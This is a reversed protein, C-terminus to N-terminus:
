GCFLVWRFRRQGGLACFARISASAGIRFPERVVIEGVASPSLITFLNSNNLTAAHASAAGAPADADVIV